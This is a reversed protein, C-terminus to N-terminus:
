ASRITSNALACPKDTTFTTVSTASSGYATVTSSGCARVASSGCSHVTLWVGAPSGIDIFDVGEAIAADLEAQTTVTKTTTSM